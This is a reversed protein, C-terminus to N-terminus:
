AQGRATASSQRLVYKFVQEPFRGALKRLLRQKLPRRKRPNVVWTEAWWHIAVTDPVIVEPRFTEDWAYPYFYRTPYVSVDRVKIPEDAYDGLGNERLLETLLGPGSYAGVDTRGDMEEDEMPLWHGQEAGFIAGNVAEASSDKRQFGLFAHDGLLAEPSKVLEVDTDLYIGGFRCLADMRMYDSVRNWAGVSFAYRVYKSSSTMTDNTWAMITWDPLMTRWAEIRQRDIEPLPKPGVWVYHIIKPIM